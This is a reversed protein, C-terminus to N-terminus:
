RKVVLYGDQLFRDLQDKTPVGAFYPTRLVRLCPQLKRLNPQMGLTTAPQLAHATSAGRMHTSGRLGIDPKFAAQALLRQSFRACVSAMITRDHFYTLVLKCTNWKTSFLSVVVFGNLKIGGPMRM